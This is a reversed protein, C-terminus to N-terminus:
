SRGLKAAIPSPPASAQQQKALALRRDIDTDIESKYDWYFSLASYIQSLTLHPYQFHNTDHIKRWPEVTMSPM